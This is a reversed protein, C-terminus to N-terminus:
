SLRRGIRWFCFGALALALAAYVATETWQFAWYRNAPQYTVAIRVGNSTLCDLLGMHGAKAQVAGQMAQTCAVPVSSVPQGATNVAATSLVWAETETYGDPIVTFTGSEIPINVSAFSSFTTVTHEPPFLQPRVWLPTAVQLAAFVALTVAMAPVARRVLLGATVGLAFGLVAYGLPVIGHTAFVLPSFQNMAIPACCAGRAVALSIPSAWWGQMLSLAETVAMAALGTLALKVAMWRTRTISQNWALYHTGAEFEGAILPAGWFMGIVAPAVLITVIGLLDLLWYTGAGGIFGGAHTTGSSLRQVFDDAFAGCVDVSGQCRGLTSSAYMSALLPGTVALLVAFVALVAGAVAAKTRSQRWTLWIL